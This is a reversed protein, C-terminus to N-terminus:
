RIFILLNKMLRILFSGAFIFSKRNPMKVTVGCKQLQNLVAMQNQQTSQRNQAIMQGQQQQQQQLPQQRAQGGNANMSRPIKTLSVQSPLKMETM